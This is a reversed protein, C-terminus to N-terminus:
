DAGRSSRDLTRRVYQKLAQKADMAWRKVRSGVGHDPQPPKVNAEPAADAKTDSTKRELSLSPQSKQRQLTYGRTVKKSAAPSTILLRFMSLKKRLVGHKGLPADSHVSLSEVCTAGDSSSNAREIVKENTLSPPYPINFPDSPQPSPEYSEKQVDEQKTSKASDSPTSDKDTENGERSASHVGLDALSNCQKLRAVSSIAASPSSKQNKFALQSRSLKLKLQPRPRLDNLSQSDVKSLQRRINVAEGTTREPSARVRVKFKAPSRKEEGYQLSANMRQSEPTRSQVVADSNPLSQADNATTSGPEISTPRSVLCRDGLDELPLPPLAKMLQPISNKVRLHRAPSIPEPCIIDLSQDPTSLIQRSEKPETLDGISIRMAAANRRHKKYTQGGDLDLTPFLRLPKQSDSGTHIVPATQYASSGDQTKMMEETAKFFPSKALQDFPSFISAFDPISPDLASWNEEGEAKDSCSPQSCVQTQNCETAAAEGPATCHRCQHYLAETETLTRQRKSIIKSPQNDTVLKAPKALTVLQSKAAVDGNSSAPKCVAGEDTDQCAAVQDGDFQLAEPLNNCHTSQVLATSHGKKDVKDLAEYQMVIECNDGTVRHGPEVQVAQCDNGVAVDARKEFDESYDYYFSGMVRLPTRSGSSTGPRHYMDVISTVSPSRGHRDTYCRPQREFRGHRSM